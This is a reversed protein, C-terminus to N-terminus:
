EYSKSSSWIDDTMFNIINEHQSQEQQYHQDISAFEVSTDISIDSTTIVNSNDPPQENVSVEDGDDSEAPVTVVDSIQVMEVRGGGAAADPTSTNDQDPIYNQYNRTYIFFQYHNVIRSLIFLVTLIFTIGGCVMVFIFTPSSTSNYPDPTSSPNMPPPAPIPPSPISIICDSVDYYFIFRLWKGISALNTINGIRYGSAGNLNWSLRASANASSIDHGDKLNLNRDNAFGFSYRNVYYWSVGNNMTSKCKTPDSLDCRLFVVNSKGYAGVAFTVKTNPNKAGVFLLRNDHFNCAEIDSASLKDSYPSKLCLYWCSNDSFINSDVNYRVGFPFPMNSSVSVATSDIGKIFLAAYSLCGVSIWLCCCGQSCRM